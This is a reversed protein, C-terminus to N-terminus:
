AELIKRLYQQTEQPLCDRWDNPRQHLLRDLHGVGWNYAALTRPYDGDYHRLLWALYKAAGAINGRWDRANIGLEKATAPLLQFLGVAGCPSCASVCFSSEAACQRLVTEAAVGQDAAAARIAQEIQQRTPDASRPM